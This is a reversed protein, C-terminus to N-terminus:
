PSIVRAIATLLRLRERTSLDPQKLLDASATLLELKVHVLYMAAPIEDLSAIEGPTFNHSYLSRRPPPCPQPLVAPNRAYWGHKLANLNGPQAGRKRSSKPPTM